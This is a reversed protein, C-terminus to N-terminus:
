IAHSLCDSASSRASHFTTPLGTMIAGTCNGGSGSSTAVPSCSM